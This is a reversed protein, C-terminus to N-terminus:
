YKSDMLSLQDNASEERKPIMALPAINADAKVVIVGNSIINKLLFSIDKLRKITIKRIWLQYNQFDV